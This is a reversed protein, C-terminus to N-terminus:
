RGRDRRRGRSDDGNEQNRQEDSEGKRAPIAPPEFLSLDVPAIKGTKCGCKRVVVKKLVDVVYSVTASCLPCKHSEDGVQSLSVTNGMTRLWRLVMDLKHEVRALSEAMVDEAPM